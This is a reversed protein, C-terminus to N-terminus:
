KSYQLAELVLYSAGEMNDIYYFTYFTANLKLNPKEKLRFYTKCLLTSTATRVLMQNFYMRYIKTTRRLKEQKFDKM